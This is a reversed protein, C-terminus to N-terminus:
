CPRSYSKTYVSQFCPLNKLAKRTYIPAFCERRECCCSPNCCFLEPQTRPTCCCCCQNCPPPCTCSFIGAQNPIRPDCCFTRFCSNRPLCLGENCGKPPCTQSLRYICSDMAQFSTVTLSSIKHFFNFVWLNSFCISPFKRRQRKKLIFKM